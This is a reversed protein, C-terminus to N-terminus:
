SFTFYLINFSHLKFNPKVKNNCSINLTMRTQACARVFLPSASSPPSPDASTDTSTLSTQWGITEGGGM